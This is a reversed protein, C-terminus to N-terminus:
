RSAAGVWAAPVDEGSRRMSGAGWAAPTFLPQGAPGQRVFERVREVDNFGNLLRESDGAAVNASGLCGGAFAFAPEVLPQEKVPCLVVAVPRVLSPIGVLAQNGCGFGTTYLRESFMRPHLEATSRKRALSSTSPAFGKVRELRFIFRKPGNM